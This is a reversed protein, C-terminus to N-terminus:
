GDLRRGRNKWAHKGIQTWAIGPKAEGINVPEGDTTMAAFMQAGCEPCRLSTAGGGTIDIDTSEASYFVTAHLNKSCYIAILM